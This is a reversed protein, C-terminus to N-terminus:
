APQLNAYALVLWKMGVQDFNVQVRAHNGSGEYSVLIGDGFTAHTVLQGVQYDASEDDEQYSTSSIVPRSVMARPRVEVLVNEPIDRLFRSPIPYTERGYLRRHEATTLVLQKEARTMGVYCLRREEALRSPEAVSRESPFLGEELGVIFVLPFELGKASHLTMLQVNDDGPDSQSEGSELATYALFVSLPDLDAFEEDEALDAEDEQQFQKAASVLEQLNEVRSRGKEGKEKQYHALLGSQSMASILLEDITASESFVILEDMVSKFGALAKVARAPISEFEIIINMADWFSIGEKLAMARISQLTKEGIGRPPTNVIRDFAADDLQNSVLRLYALADKIEARDFFRMGGYIRYPINEMLLAEEIVRSQANSRYLIACEKRCNGEEIWQQISDVVFRAEDRENYATYLKVPDGDHSETWLKKGLRDPNKEILKNAAHLINGSSRYNQELRLIEIGTYDKQLSQINEVKAGRWGYISQDDDGVITLRGSEQCLARVWQYQIKNTDQFEDVLVHAFRQQYHALLSPQKQWLEVARLLLEAFDVLGSQECQQEYATYIKHMVKIFFDGESVVDKARLGDDKQTNIFWQAQRPPWQKEDVQNERMVRKILRLQDDSDLIQFNEPLDAETAHARLLRHAIGHFTGIWMTNTDMGLLHEVRSRMERAAKNTFTVALISYPSHNEAQILWAIRHVLVRTKGTGAGALILLPNAPACVANRQADNLEELITSVDDLM